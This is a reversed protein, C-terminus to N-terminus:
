KNQHTSIFLANVGKNFGFLYIGVVMASLFFAVWFMFRIVALLEIRSSDFYQTLFLFTNYLQFTDVLPFVSLGLISIMPAHRARLWLAVAAWGSLIIVLATLIHYILGVTSFREFLSYFPIWYYVLEQYLFYVVVSTFFTIYFLV